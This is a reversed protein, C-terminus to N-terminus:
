DYKLFNKTKILDDPTNINTFQREDHFEVRELPFEELWTIIKRKGSQLYARLSSSWDTPICSFTPHIKGAVCAVTAEAKEEIIPRFLLQVLNDPFLPADCPLTTLFRTDAHEMATLFGALPGEFVGYSDAVVLDCLSSYTTLNRNASILVKNVQPTIKEVCHEILYKDAIELLGKDTGGLRSGKGGALICATVGGPIHYLSDNTM